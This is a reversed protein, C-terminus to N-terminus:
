MGSRASLWTPSNPAGCFARYREVREQVDRAIKVRLSACEKLTRIQSDGHRERL